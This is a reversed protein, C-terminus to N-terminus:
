NSVAALTKIAMYKRQFFAIGSYGGTESTYESMRRLALTQPLAM